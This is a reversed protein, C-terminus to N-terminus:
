HLEGVEIHTVLPIARGLFRQAIEQFKLPIDSVYFSNDGQTRDAMIGKEDLISAVEVATSEASDVLQIGDDLIKKLARKLLPYHTCGLVLTDIGESVLPAAYERLVM